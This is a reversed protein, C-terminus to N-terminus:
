YTKQPENNTNGWSISSTNAHVLLNLLDRHKKSGVGTTGISDGPPVGRLKLDRTTTHSM